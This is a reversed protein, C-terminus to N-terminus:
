TLNTQDSIAFGCYYSAIELIKRNLIPCLHGSSPIRFHSTIKQRARLDIILYKIFDLSKTLKEEEKKENETKGKRKGTTIIKMGKKAPRKIRHIGMPLEEGSPLSPQSLSGMSLIVGFILSLLIKM